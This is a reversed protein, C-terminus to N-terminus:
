RLPLGHLSLTPYLVYCRNLGLDVLHLCKLLACLISPLFIRVERRAAKANKDRERASDDLASLEGNLAAVDRRKEEIVGLLHGENDAM